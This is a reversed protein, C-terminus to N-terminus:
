VNDTTKNLNSNDELASSKSLLNQNFDETNKDKKEILQLEKDADNKEANGVVDEKNENKVNNCNAQNNHKNLSEKV